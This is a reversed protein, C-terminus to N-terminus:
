QTRRVQVKLEDIERQMRDLERSLSNFIQIWIAGRTDAAITNLLGAPNWAM